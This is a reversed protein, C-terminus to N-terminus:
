CGALDLRTSVLHFGPAIGDEALKRQRFAETRAGLGREGECAVYVVTGQKVRHGRYEWGLAVHMVLDFTWFSKGCKPEGWIVVLGERPLIDRVLYAASTEMKIKDFAILKFRFNTTGAEDHGGPFQQGAPHNSMDNM